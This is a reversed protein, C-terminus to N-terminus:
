SAIIEALKVLPMNPQKVFGLKSKISFIRPGEATIGRKPLANFYHLNVLLREVLYRGEIFKHLMDDRLTQYAQKALSM